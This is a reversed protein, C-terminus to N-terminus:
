SILVSLLSGPDVREPHGFAGDVDVGPEDRGTVAIHRKSARAHSVLSHISLM